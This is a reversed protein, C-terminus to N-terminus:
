YEMRRFIRLATPGPTTWLASYDSLKMVWGNWTENFFDMGFITLGAFFLM